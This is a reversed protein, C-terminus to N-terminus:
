HPKGKTRALYAGPRTRAMMPAATGTAMHGLFIMTNRGFVLAGLGGLAVRFGLVLQKSGRFIARPQRLFGEGVLALQPGFRTYGKPSVPKSHLM